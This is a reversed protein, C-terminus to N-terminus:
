QCRSEVEWYSDSERPSQAKGELDRESAEMQKQRYSKSGPRQGPTAGLLPSSHTSSAPFSSQSWISMRLKGTAVRLRDAYWFVEQGQRGFNVEVLTPGHTLATPQAELSVRIELAAPTLAWALTGQALVARGM